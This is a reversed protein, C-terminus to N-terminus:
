GYMPETLLAMRIKIPSDSDNSLLHHTDRAALHQPWPRQSGDGARSGAFLLFLM